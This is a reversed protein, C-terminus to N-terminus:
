KHDDEDGLYKKKFYFEGAYTTSVNFVIDVDVRKQNKEEERYDGQVWAGIKHTTIEQVGQEYDDRETKFKVIEVRPNSIKAWGYEKLAYEELIRRLECDSIRYKVTSM